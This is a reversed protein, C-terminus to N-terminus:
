ARLAELIRQRLGPHRILPDINMVDEASFGTLAQLKKALRTLDDVVPADDSPRTDACMDSYISEMPLGTSLVRLLTEFNRRGDEDLSSSFAVVAPHETNVDYRFHGHAPESRSWASSFRTDRTQRGAYTVTRKSAGAFHPILERLRTRIFEPPQAASKKIDLAWLEDFTNPIDVQIRTLKFFEQKPTLRFWTGWIVLRRNRYVYFGQSGRLGEGGGALEIEEPTLKSIPPLVYPTVTVVGREHRFNQGELPQRFTNGRLFPDRPPLALGNIRMTVAPNRDERATFRHFVLALHERLGSFKATMERGIDASGAALRDLEQWVVLTGSESSAIRDHLPLEALEDPSPVVVLWRGSAAVVDLDWKLASILGNRKTVVTLHRCQSMSATKLGLGFRGLDGADRASSPNRSGHRMAVRLGQPTMGDGNDLIAVFPQHMADYEVDIVSAHASISNDILDAIASEATYGVARMSELLAVPDPVIEETELSTGDSM